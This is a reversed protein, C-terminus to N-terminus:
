KSGGKGGSLLSGIIALVVLGAVTQGYTLPPANFAGVAVANWAWRAPFALVMLLVGYLVAVLALAGVCGTLDDRM